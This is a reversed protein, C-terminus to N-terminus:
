CHTHSSDNNNKLKSVMLSTEAERAVRKLSKESEQLLATASSIFRAPCISSGNRLKKLDESTYLKQNQCSRKSDDAFM